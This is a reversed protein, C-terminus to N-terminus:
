RAPHFAGGTKRKLAHRAGFDWQTNAIACVFVSGDQQSSRRKRRQSMQGWFSIARM